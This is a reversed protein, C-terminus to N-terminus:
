PTGKSDPALTLRSVTRADVRERSIPVNWREGSQYSNFFDFFHESMPNGSNGAPLVMTAADVEAFDIVFRWSPGVVVDYRGSDSPFSFSSNLTGASGGWPWPGRKLDLLSGVIPVAAMPHQMVLQQLKGWPRGAVKELASTLARRGIDDRTEIYDPTTRDDIWASVSDFYAAEITLQGIEGAYNQLEDGFLTPRLDDVFSRVLTTALSATDTSGDWGALAARAGTTDNVVDLLRLLEPKWRLLWADVRDMQFRQMDDVTFIEKSELLSTIRLIRDAFYAGPIDPEAAPRNNCTALWGTPPNETHPTADLPLYGRWANDAIWGPLPLRFEPNGRIPVPTGLQYGITGEIDAYMWNANLTGMSTVTQRFTEFENTQMLEFGATVVEDLDADYGAWHQTYVTLPDNTEITVPGRATLRYTVPLASDRGAVPISDHVIDLVAWVLSDSGRLPDIAALYQTSDHPHLREEYYDTIDIGGATFAWAARGNHGMVFFPLGPITIGVADIDSETIHLGAAYWFQPLRGLELHPDSAFLAAGSASRGPSVAWANSATTASFGRTGTRAINNALHERIGVALSPLLGDNFDVSSRPRSKTPVTSPAWAPYGLPLGEVADRHGDDALTIFFRDRNELADSFWMEFSLVCLCDYVSWDNFTVPLLRFEFPVAAGHRKYANIGDAYAQLRRRNDDSLDAMAARAMRTHGIRRQDIDLDLTFDGLMQSLRGQSIRRVLDLQFMRDAAQQWGLAYLGDYETQAWIQPIGLSDFTIEIAATPDPLVITGSTPAVSSTLMYRGAVVTGILIAALVM